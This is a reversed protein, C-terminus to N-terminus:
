QLKELRAQLTKREQALEDRTACLRVANLKAFKRAQTETCNYRKRFELYGSPANTRGILMVAKSREDLNDVLRELISILVLEDEIEQKTM